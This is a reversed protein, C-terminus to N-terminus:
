RERANPGKEREGQDGDPWALGPWRRGGGRPRGKARDSNNNWALGIPRASVARFADNIVRINAQSISRAAFADLHPNAPRALISSQSFRPDFTFRFLGLDGNLDVEVSRADKGYGCPDPKKVMHELLKRAM